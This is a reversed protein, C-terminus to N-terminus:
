TTGAMPLGEERGTSTAQAREQTGCTRQTNHKPQATIQNALSGPSLDGQLTALHVKMGRADINEFWSTM